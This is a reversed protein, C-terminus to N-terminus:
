NLNCNTFNPKPEEWSIVGGNFRYCFRVNEVSWNSLDQNFKYADFFMVDMERVNSVDWNGIPQNFTTGAFMASMCTVNSVDWNSINANFYTQYNFAEEM